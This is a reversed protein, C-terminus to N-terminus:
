ASRGAMGTTAPRWSSANFPAADFQKEPLNLANYETVFISGNGDRVQTPNGVKDYLVVGTTRAEPTDAAETTLLKRDEADYGTRTVFGRANTATVVNGNLDYSFFTTQGEADTASLVLGRSDRLYSRAHGNGDIVKVERGEGDLETTTMFLEADIVQYPRNWQDFVTETIHGNADTVYRLNGVPDYQYGTVIGAPRTMSTRRNQRDYDFITTKGEEDTEAALNGAADYQWLHLDGLANTRRTKQYRGNYEYRTLNGEADTVTAVNSEPDAENNYSTVIEGRGTQNALQPQLMKTQRNLADYEYDTVRGESDTVQTLNGALDYGMSMSDGLRNITSDRRNLADYSTPRALGKWDTESILNGNEDYIFNKEGGSSRVIKAVQDRVTYTYSLSLGVRDTESLLHGQADYDFIKVRTSGPPLNDSSLAPYTVSAPYDLDDYAYTVTNGNPDTEAVLRGRVDYDYDTMSGEAATITDPNGQQDYTYSTLNNRPDTMTSVEGSANYTYSTRQGDGDDHYNLNGNEPDYSWTQTVGNRDVLALPVSYDQNWTSVTSNGYPDIEKTINGRADYEYYTTHGRPDTKSTMVNDLKGEDISWTMGTSKGLPEDIRIPNGFTNLTYVSDFGRLDNVLRQNGNSVDYGFSATSGDAYTVEKVMDQAKVFHLYFELGQDIEGFEHYVYRTAHHNSDTTSLLNFDGKVIGPERVYEYTEIREGRRAIQLNGNSDYSYNVVLNDPGYISVLRSRDEDPVNYSEYTFIFERGVSDIVRNLHLDADYSFTLANGNRDEIRTVLLQLKGGPTDYTYTTGDKAIFQYGGAIEKLRGHNGRQAFWHRNLDNPDRKFVTGNAQVHNWDQIAPDIPRESDTFFRGKLSDVWDPVARNGNPDFNLLRLRLDLSHSWGNGLPNRHDSAYQNNYSRTFTFDPGRGTVSLDTRSLNLSGDQLLVDHVMTQGLMKARSFQENLHGRYLRKIAQGNGDNVQEVQLYFEPNSLYSFGAGVIQEYDLVFHYRGAAKNVEPVLVQREVMRDDLISVKVKASDSLEFSFIRHFDHEISGLNQLSVSDFQSTGHTRVANFDGMFITEDAFVIPIRASWIEAEGWKYNLAVQVTYKGGPNFWLGSPIHDTNAGQTDTSKVYILNDDEYILFSASVADYDIPLITYDVPIVGKAFGFEDLPVNVFEPMEILVGTYDITWDATYPSPKLPPRRPM